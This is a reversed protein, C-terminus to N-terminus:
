PRSGCRPPPRNRSHDRPYPGYTDGGLTRTLMSSPPELFLLSITGDLKNHASRSFAHNPKAIDLRRPVVLIQSHKEAVCIVDNIFDRRDEPELRKGKESKTVKTSLKALVENIPAFVNAEDLKMLTDQKARELLSLIRHLNRVEHQPITKEPKSIIYVAQSILVSVWTPRLEPYDIWHGEIVAIGVARNQIGGEFWKLSELLKAQRNARSDREKWDLTDSRNKRFQYFSFTLSAITLLVAGASVLVAPDNWGRDEKAKSKSVVDSVIADKHLLLDASIPPAPAASAVPTSPNPSAGTEALCLGACSCVLLLLLSKSVSM